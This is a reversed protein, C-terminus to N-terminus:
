HTDTGESGMEMEEWLLPTPAQGDMHLLLASLSPHRGGDAGQGGPRAGGLLERSTPRRAKRHRAAEAMEVPAVPVATWPCRVTEARPFFDTLPIGPLIPTTHALLSLWGRLLKAPRGRTNSTSENM